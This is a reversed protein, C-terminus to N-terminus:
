SQKSIKDFFSVIDKFYDVRNRGQIELLIHIESSRYILKIFKFDNTKSFIFNGDINKSIDKSFIFDLYRKNTNDIKYIGLAKCYNKMLKEYM